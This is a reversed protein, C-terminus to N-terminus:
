ACHSARNLHPLVGTTSHGSGDKRIQVEGYSCAHGVRVDIVCMALGMDVALLAQFHPTCVSLFNIRFLPSLSRADLIGHWYWHM